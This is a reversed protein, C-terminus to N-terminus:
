AAIAEHAEYYARLSVILGGRVKVLYGWRHEHPVGTVSRGRFDVVLAQCDGADLVEEVTIAMAESPGLAEVYGQFCKIVSKRGRYRSAGPWRPDEVYEIEPDWYRAAAEELSQAEVGGWARRILEVDERSM